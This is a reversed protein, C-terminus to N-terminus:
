KPISGSKGGLIEYLIHDLCRLWIITGEFDVKFAVGITGSRWIDNVIEDAIFVEDLIQRGKLFFFDRQFHFPIMSCRFVKKLIKYLNTVLIIAILVESLYFFLFIRYSCRLWMTMDKRGIRILHLPSSIM